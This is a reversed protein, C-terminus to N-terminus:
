ISIKRLKKLAEQKFVSLFYITSVPLQTGEELNIKLIYFYDPASEVLHASNAQISSFCFCIQFYSFSLLKWIYLFATIGIIAINSQKFTSMSTKSTLISVIPDLSYLFNNSILLTVLSINAIVYLLVQNQQLFPCLTILGNVWDIM